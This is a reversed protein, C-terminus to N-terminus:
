DEDGASLMLGLALGYVAHAAGGRAHAQWPFAQPPPTLGLVTNLGEDVVVSMAAAVGLGAQVPSLGRAMLVKAAPGGSAGFAYHVLMGLKDAQEDALERGFVGATKRVLVTTPMASRLQEERARAQEDEREYLWSSAYEMMLTAGVGAVASGLVPQVKM